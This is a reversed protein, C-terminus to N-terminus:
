MRNEMSKAHAHVVKQQHEEDRQISEPTSPEAFGWIQWEGEKGKYVRRQMVLYEVVKQDKGNDLYQPEQPPKQQVHKAGRPKWESKSHFPSKDKVPGKKDEIQLAQVSALRVIVQRYASDPFKAGITGVRDSVIRVSKWRKLKWEMEFPGRAKIRDQLKRHLPKLCTEKLSEFNGRFQSNASYEFAIIHRLSLRCSHNHIKVPLHVYAALNEYFLKYFEKAKDRLYQRKWMDIPTYQILGRKEICRRYAIRSCLLTLSEHEEGKRSM